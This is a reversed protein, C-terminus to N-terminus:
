LYNDQILFKEITTSDNSFYCQALPIKEGRLVKPLWYIDDPWMNEYPINDKLFWKPAMEETEVPDGIWTRAFFIHMEQNWDTKIDHFFQIVAVKLLDVEAVTVGIEEQVERVCAREITENEEVKGGVGNYNGAGMRLKKLAFLINEGELLFCLTTKQM